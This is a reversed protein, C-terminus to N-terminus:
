GANSLRDALRRGVRSYVNKQRFLQTYNYEYVHKRANRRTIMLNLRMREFRESRKRRISVHDRTLNERNSFIDPM